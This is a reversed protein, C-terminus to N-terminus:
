STMVPYFSRWRGKALGPQLDRAPSSEFECIAWGQSREEKMRRGHNGFKKTLELFLLEATCVTESFESLKPFLFEREISYFLMFAEQFQKNKALAVQMLAQDLRSSVEEEEEQETRNGQGNPDNNLTKTHFMRGQTQFMIICLTTINNKESFSVKATPRNRHRPFESFSYLSSFTVPLRTTM